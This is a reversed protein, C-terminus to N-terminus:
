RRREWDSPQLRVGTMQHLKAAVKRQWSGPGEHSMHSVAFTSRQLSLDGNSRLNFPSYTRGYLKPASRDEADNWINCKGNHSWEAVVGRGVRLLLVAHGTQVSGDFTAFSVDKGFARRAARSGADDFVVWAESILDARYVAEWFARRYVWMRELAVEDVIDLFQRLSQETLWRRVIDAAQPMRSWRSGPLRPDKFLELLLSLYQDRIQKAPMNGGFPLVLANAVLPAHEEFILGGRQDLTLSKVIKLRTDAQIETDVSLQLLTESACARAFGSRSDLAGLGGKQLVVTPSVGDTLAQRGVNQPGAQWDFLDHQDHLEAWPRGLRSAIRRLTASAEAIGNRDPEFALLFSSALARGPPKRGCSEIRALTSELIDRHDSLAPTTMWLCWAADRLERTTVDLAVRLRKLFTQAVEDYDKADRRFAQGDIGSVREAAVAVAPVDRLKLSTLPRAKLKQIAENLYSM